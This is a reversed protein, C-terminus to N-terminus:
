SFSALKQLRPKSAFTNWVQIHQVAQGDLTEAGVYHITEDSNSLSSLLLPLPFDTCQDTLALELPPSSSQSGNIEKAAGNAYVVTRQGEQLTLTEFTRTAGLTLIQITGAQTTSGEVVTVTGTASSDTPIGNAMAAISQQLMAIAQQDRQPSQATMPSPLQATASVIVLVFALLFAFRPIRM